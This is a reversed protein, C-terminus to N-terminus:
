LKKFEMLNAQTQHNEFIIGDPSIGKFYDKQWGQQVTETDKNALQNLFETRRHKWLSFSTKLEQDTAIPTQVPTISEALGRTIPIIMCIPEGKVFTVVHKPRTLKWNMTFTASSWDSEVIGELAQIGDKPSNSPGKVWLNINKPTRFLYPLSFTLVGSGFHSAIREDPCNNAFKIMLDEKKAGGNWYLSFESPNQILWGSTNAMIMPLCRYAFRGHTQDMWLRTVPAAILTMARPDHIEYAYLVNDRKKKM